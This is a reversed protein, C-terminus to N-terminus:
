PRIKKVAEAAANRVAKVPDDEAVLELIPIASGAAPGIDGLAVASELRAMEGDARLGRRLLPIAREVLSRDEPEIKLTAWVAVTALMEDESEALPRLDALAEKAAGGIRGLAYAASYRLGPKANADAVLRRLAPIAAAAEPGIAAIAVAAESAHDADADGLQEMIADLAPKAAPGIGALIELVNTRVAPDALKDRLTDVCVGGLRILSAGAARGVEPDPDAILSTFTNVLQKRQEDDLQAALDSLGAVAGERVAPAKNAVAALLRRLAEAAFPKEGRHIQALAWSATAALTQDEDDAVKELAADVGAARVKGLAFAAPFRLSKDPSEVAAVLAPTAAAAKEGIAALALIAQLREHVEGSTALEALPQTAPAAEEGITALGIAAWYRSQPNKLAEVLVPVAIEEMDALTHLAPMVVSPDADALQKAFLPALVEPAPDFARLARIAARRVRPDPHVIAGALAKQGEGYLAADAPTITATDEDDRILGIAAVAQAAVVPDTDALLKVLVPLASSADEGILGIARAAHWRVRLEPDETARVLADLAPRANQGLRAIEDITVVRERSDGTTTLKKILDDLANATSAPAAPQAATAPAAPAPVAPATAAAPPTVPRPPEPYTCGALCAALTLCSVSSVPKCPM